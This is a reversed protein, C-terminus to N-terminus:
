GAIPRMVERAFLEVAEITPGPSGIFYEFGADKLTTLRNIAEDPTCFNATGELFALMRKGMPDSERQARVAAAAEPTKALVFNIHATRLIADFPRGVENCHSRLVDFKRRVDEATFAGERGRHPASTARM